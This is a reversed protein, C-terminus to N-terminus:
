VARRIREFDALLDKGRHFGRREILDLTDQAERLDATRTKELLAACDELDRPRGALVKLALLHGLRVVPVFLGPFTELMEAGAVIEEEVGSSAFLLDVGLGEDQEEPALLWVAALRGVDKQELLPGDPRDRYGRDRLERVVLEAERDAAVVVAVDVDWTTRPRARVSVAIGGVVAWRRGLGRLDADIRGLARELRNVKRSGLDPACTRTPAHANCGNSSVGNSGPTM